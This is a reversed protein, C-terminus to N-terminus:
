GLLTAMEASVRAAMATKALDHRRLAAVMVARNRDTPNADFRETANMAALALAGVEASTLNLLKKTASTM